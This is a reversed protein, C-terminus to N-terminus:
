KNILQTLLNEKDAGYKYYASNSAFVTSIEVQLIKKYHRDNSEEIVNSVEDLGWIDRLLNVRLEEVTKGQIPVSGRQTLEAVMRAIRDANKPIYSM